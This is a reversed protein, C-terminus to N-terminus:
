PMVDATNYKSEEGDGPHEAAQKRHLWEEPGRAAIGPITNRLRQSATRQIERLERSQAQRCPVDFFDLERANLTASVIANSHATAFRLEYRCDRRLDPM